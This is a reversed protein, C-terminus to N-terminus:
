VPLRNAFIEERRLLEVRGQQAVKQSCARDINALDQLLVFFPLRVLALLGLSLDGNDEKEIGESIVKAM